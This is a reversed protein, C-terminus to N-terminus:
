PTEADTISSDSNPQPPLGGDAEGGLGTFVCPSRSVEYVSSYAICSQALDGTRSGMTTRSTPLCSVRSTGAASERLHVIEEHQAVLQALVQTRFDTLEDITQESAALREKLKANETKLRAIQAELTM